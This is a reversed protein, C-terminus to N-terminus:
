RKERHKLAKLRERVRVMEPSTDAAARRRIEEEDDAIEQDVAAKHDAYYALAAAVEDHTLGYGEAIEHVSEGLQRRAVIDHVTIRHGNIIPLGGCIAPDKTIHIGSYVSLLPSVEFKSQSM